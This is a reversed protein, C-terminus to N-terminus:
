EDIRVGRKATRPAARDIDSRTAIKMSGAEARRVVAITTYATPLAPAHNFDHLSVPYARRDALTWHDQNFPDVRLTTQMLNQTWTRLSMPHQRDPVNLMLASPVDAM